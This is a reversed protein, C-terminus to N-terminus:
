FGFLVFEGSITLLLASAEKKRYTQQLLGLRYHAFCDLQLVRLLGSVLKDLASGSLGRMCGVLHLTENASLWEFSQSQQEQLSVHASFEAPTHERFRNGNLYLQM